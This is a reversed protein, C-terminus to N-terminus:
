RHTLPWSSTTTPSRASRARSTWPWSRRTPPTTAAPSPSTCPTGAMTRTEDPARGTEVDEPRNYGNAGLVNAAAQADTEAVADPLALWQGDGDHGNPTDLVYLTGESLDGETDPIFRFIGGPNSESIGYNYGRRDFRMGEHSKSGLEPRAAIGHNFPAVDDLPDDLRLESPDDPDVLARLGARGRRDPVPPGASRADPGGRIRPDDGV